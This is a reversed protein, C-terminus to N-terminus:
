FKIVTRMTVTQDATPTFAQKNDIYLLEGSYKDATPPTVGSAGFSHSASDLFTAGVTPVANDISQLLAGTSKISVVRFRPGTLSGMTLTMDAKFTTIIEEPDVGNACAHKQTIGHYEITEEPIYMCRPKAIKRVKKEDIQKFKLDYKKIVDPKMFLEFIKKWDFDFPKEKAINEFDFTFGNYTRLDDYPPSTVVLNISESPIDKLLDLCNGHLTVIKQDM